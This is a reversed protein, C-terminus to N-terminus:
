LSALVKAGQRLEVTNLAFFHPGKEWDFVSLLPNEEDVPSLKFPFDKKGAIITGVPLISGIQNPGWDPYNFGGFSCYGGVMILGQGERVGEALWKVWAPRFYDAATNSLMVVDTSSLHDDLNRPMYLRMYRKISNYDVAWEQESSPVLSLSILPDLEMGRTPTQVALCDGIYKLRIRQSNPDRRPERAGLIIPTLLIILCLGIFARNNM